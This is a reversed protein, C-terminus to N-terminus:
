ATREATRETEGIRIEGSILKPLLADRLQALTRSERNASSIREFLPHVIDIFPRVINRPPQAVLYSALSDVPVRQRGSSGTMKAIAFARFDEFRALLYAYENPLPAKPCLVIFETSGCGVIGDPLFDVMSAKGNELCPTIRAILTDGQRFRSGSVFPRYAIKNVAFGRTPVNAMDLYPALHGRALQRPPNISVADSLPVARWGKPIEGMQADEFSDSFLAAIEPRLSTDRGEAKARVPDFDVFWSKFLAQAMAELTANMKGNLEIKDDLASLTSAIARQESLPPCPIPLSRLVGLNILPVSSGTNRQRVYAVMRPSAFWYFAFLPDVKQKDVRVRMQKNSIIYRGYRSKRPVIGVQGLTGAATFILDDTVAECNALEGAKADTVFVFGEDLFRRFDDTLNNGRIVPVGDQVFFRSGINSGFPGSVIAGRKPLAIDGITSWQWGSPLPNDTM